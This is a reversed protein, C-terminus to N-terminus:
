KVRATLLQIYHVLKSLDNSIEGEWGPEENQKDEFLVQSRALSEVEIELDIDAIHWELQISGNAAPVIQPVPTSSFMIDRLLEVVASAIKPSIRKAGYSDWDDDLAVIALLAKTTQELWKPISARDISVISSGKPTVTQQGDSLSDKWITEARANM